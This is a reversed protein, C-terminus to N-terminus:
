AEGALEDVDDGIADGLADLGHGDGLRVDAEPGVPATGPGPDARSAAPHAIGAGGAVPPHVQVRDGAQLASSGRVATGNVVYVYPGRPLDLTEAVAEVGAGDDVELRISGDPARAALTGKLM